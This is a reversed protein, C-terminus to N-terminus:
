KGRFKRDKEMIVLGYNKGNITAGNQLKGKVSIESGKTPVSEDTCVWISGTGDDLKYCGGRVGLIPINLGDADRVIGTIKVTKNQYKSPNAEIDAISKRSAGFVVLGSLLILGTILVIAKKKMKMEESNLKFRRLSNNKM